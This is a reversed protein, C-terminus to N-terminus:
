PSRRRRLVHADGRRLTVKTHDLHELLAQAYKRSTGLEDRLGAITAEGDRECIAVVQAELVGLPEPHFHLSRGVRVAEGARELATWARGAARPDIGAAEALDGDARPARGDSRLLAALALAIDDLPEPEPETEKETDPEAVDEGRLAAVVEQSPGHKRPAADVVVGGGITDPPAVQRLILRDGAVAMLPAELRLQAFGGGLPVVRAPAERTGHHVQVRTGRALPRAGEEMAVAVDV